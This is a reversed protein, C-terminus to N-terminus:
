EVFDVSVMQEAVARLAAALPVHAPHEQYRKLADLDDYRGVVAADFSRPSHAVDEGVEYGRMEPIIGPLGRLGQIIREIEQRETGPKFRVLVIHKIM